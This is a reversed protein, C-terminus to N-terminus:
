SGRYTSYSWPSVLLPVHYHGDPEALGVRLPVLDLFPPDATATARARFYDGVHFVLEYTGARFAEGALLPAETRGDANTTATLLPERQAGELRFLEIRVGAAPRGSATDLVHTSLRGM